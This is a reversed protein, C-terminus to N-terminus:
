NGLKFITGYTLETSSLILPPPLVCITSASHARGGGWRLPVTERNSTKTRSRKQLLSQSTRVPDWHDILPANQPIQFSSLFFPQQQMTARSVSTRWSTTHNGIKFLLPTRCDTSPCLWKCSYGHFQESHFFGIRFCRTNHPEM